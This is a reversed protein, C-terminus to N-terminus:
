FVAGKTRERPLRENPRHKQWQTTNAPCSKDIVPHEGTQLARTIVFLKGSSSLRRICLSSRDPSQLRTLVHGTRIEIAHRLSLEHVM